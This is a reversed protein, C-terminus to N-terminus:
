NKKKTTQNLIDTQLQWEEVKSQNVYLIELM